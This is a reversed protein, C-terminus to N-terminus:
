YQKTLSEAYAPFERFTKLSPKISGEFHGIATEYDTRVDILITDPDKHEIMQAWDEPSVHAATRAVDVKVDLAALQKRYKVTMKEFAQDDYEHIKFEINSFRPDSKLWTMYQQASEVSASMQGNIGEENIYIRGKADQTKFFEKHKKIELQPDEIPTFIYYALVWYKKDSM